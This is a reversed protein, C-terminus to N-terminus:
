QFGGIQPTEQRIHKRIKQGSINHTLQASHRLPCHYVNFMNLTGTSVTKVQVVATRACAREPAAARAGKPKTETGTNHRSLELCPRAREFKPGGRSKRFYRSPPSLHHLGGALSSGPPNFNQKSPETHPEPTEEKNHLCARLRM